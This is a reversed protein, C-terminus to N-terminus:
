GVTLNPTLVKHTSLAAMKQHEGPKPV